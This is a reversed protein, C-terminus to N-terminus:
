SGNADYLHAMNLRLATCQLSTFIEPCLMNIMEKSQLACCCPKLNTCVGMGNTIFAV